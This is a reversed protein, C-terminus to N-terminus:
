AAAAPKVGPLPAVQVALICAFILAAGTWAAAGLRDGMFAFGALAAFLTESSLLIAADAAHTHRQAVVQATFGFGVSLLGAFAIAPAADVIMSLALPESALAWGLSLAGCALFQGCAVAFPASTRRAVEGVWLVHLAWPLVSALVWADGTNMAVRGAGSLLWTGALCGLASLWIVAGAARRMLAWALIPVAPVYLATLFGASTVTTAMVGFQQWAAGLCLLLGLGAVRLPDAADLRGGRRRLDAWERWALPAVVAAGVLFRLGTFALPGIHRMAASQVAFTVGWVVAVGLLLADAQWRKM